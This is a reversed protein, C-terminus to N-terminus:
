NNKLLPDDVDISIDKNSKKVFYIGIILGIFFIVGIVIFIYILINNGDDGGGGGGKCNYCFDLKKYFEIFHYNEKQQAM